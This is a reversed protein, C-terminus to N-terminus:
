SDIEIRPQPNTVAAVTIEIVGLVLHPLYVSDSFHFLWPSAALFIGSIIDFLLHIRMPIIKFLGLEYNTNLSYIVAAAGAGYFVFSQVTDLKLDFLWPSAILFLGTIYDLYGHTHTDILKM